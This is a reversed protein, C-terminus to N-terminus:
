KKNLIQLNEINGALAENVLNQFKTMLEKEGDFIAAGVVTQFENDRVMKDPIDLLLALTQLVVMAHPSTAFSIFNQVIM